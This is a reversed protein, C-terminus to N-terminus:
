DMICRIVLQMLAINNVQSIYPEHWGVEEHDHEAVEDTIEFMTVEDVKVKTVKFCARCRREGAQRSNNLTCCFLNGGRSCFKYGTFFQFGVLARRISAIDVYQGNPVAEAFFQKFSCVVPVDMSRSRAARRAIDFEM